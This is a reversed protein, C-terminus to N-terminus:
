ELAQTHQIICAEEKHDAFGLRLCATFRQSEAAACPITSCHHGDKNFNQGAQGTGRMASADIDM